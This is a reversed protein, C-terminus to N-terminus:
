RHEGRETSGHASMESIREYRDCVEDTVPLLTTSGNPQSIPQLTTEIHSKTCRWEAKILSFTPQNALWVMWVVLASVAVAAIVLVLWESDLFVRQKTKM